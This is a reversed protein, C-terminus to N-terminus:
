SFFRAAARATGAAPATPLRRLAAQDAQCAPRAPPLDCEICPFEYVSAAILIFASIKSTNARNNDKCAQSRLPPLGGLGIVDATCPLPPIPYAAPTSPLSCTARNPRYIHRIHIDAIAVIFCVRGPHMAITAGTEELRRLFNSELGCRKTAPKKKAQRKQRDSQHLPSPSKMDRRDAPFPQGRNKTLHSADRQQDLSPEQGNPRRGPLGSACHKMKRM